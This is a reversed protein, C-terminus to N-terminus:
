ETKSIRRGNDKMFLEKLGHSNEKVRMSDMKLLVRMNDAMAGSTFEKVRWKITKLSVPIHVTILGSSNALAMINAKLLTELM